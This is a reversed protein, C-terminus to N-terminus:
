YGETLCTDQNGAEMISRLNWGAQKLTLGLAIKVVIAPLSFKNRILDNRFTVVTGNESPILEVYGKMGNMDGAIFEWNMKSEKKNLNVKLRSKLWYLRLISAEIELIKSTSNGEILELKHVASIHKEWCRVAWIAELAKETSVKTIGAGEMQFHKKDEVSDISAFALIERKVMRELFSTNNWKSPLSANSIVPFAIIIFIFCLQKIM